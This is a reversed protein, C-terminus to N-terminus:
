PRGMGGVFGAKLESVTMEESVVHGCRCTYENFVIPPGDITERDTVTEVTWCGRRGCKSCTDSEADISM